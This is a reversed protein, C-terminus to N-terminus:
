GGQPSPPQFSFIHKRAEARMAEGGTKMLHAMHEYAEEPHRRSLEVLLKGLTEAALPRNPDEVISDLGYGLTAAAMEDATRERPCSRQSRGSRSCDLTFTM